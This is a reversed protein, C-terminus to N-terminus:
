LMQHSRDGYGEGCVSCMYCLPYHKCMTQFNDKLYFETQPSPHYFIMLGFYKNHLAELNLILAVEM